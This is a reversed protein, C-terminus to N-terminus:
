SEIIGTNKFGAFNLNLISNPMFFPALLGMQIVDLWIDDIRM